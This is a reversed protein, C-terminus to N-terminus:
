GTQEVMTSMYFDMKIVQGCSFVVNAGARGKGM